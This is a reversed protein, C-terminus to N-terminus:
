PDSPIREQDMGDRVGPGYTQALYEILRAEEEPTLRVGRRLHRDVTQAWELRSKGAQKVRGLSHCATCREQLLAEGDILIPKQVLGDGYVSAPGETPTGISAEASPEMPPQAAEETSGVPVATPAVERSPEPQELVKDGCASILSIVVLVLVILGWVAGNSRVDKEERRV